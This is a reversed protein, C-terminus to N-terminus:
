KYTSQKQYRCMDDALLEVAGTFHGWDVGVLAVLLLVELLFPANRESPSTHRPVVSLCDQVEGNVLIDSTRRQDNVASVQQSVCLRVSQSILSFHM